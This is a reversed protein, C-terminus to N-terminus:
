RGNWAQAGYGLLNVGRPPPKYPRRHHCASLLVPLLSTNLPPAKNCFETVSYPLSPAGSPHLANWETQGLHSLGEMDGVALCPSPTFLIVIVSFSPWPPAPATGPTQALTVHITLTLPPFFLM